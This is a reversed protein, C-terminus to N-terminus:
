EQAYIVESYDLQEMHKRLRSLARHLRVYINDVSCNLVAAVEVISLSEFYRLTILEQDAESLKGLVVYLTDRQQSSQVSQELNFMTPYRNHLPLFLQRRYHQTIENRAIQYLWAGFSVGRWRYRGISRLAKEFTASTIDAALTQDGTRHYAFSFIREVYREYLAVFALPDARAQEVLVIEDSDAM